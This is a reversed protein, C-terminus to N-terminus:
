ENGAHFFPLSSGAARSFIEDPFAIWLSCAPRGCRSVRAMATSALTIHFLLITHLGFVDSSATQGAIVILKEAFSLASNL